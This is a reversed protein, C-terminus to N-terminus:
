VTPAAHKRLVIAVFNLHALAGADRAACDGRAYDNDCALWDEWAEENTQMPAISVIDIGATQRILADWYAADHLTSLDEPTGMQLLEAPLADHLDRKMGPVAILVSGGPKVFPLLKEGLFAPDHAFYHYADISVVADFFDRAFPLADASAKLAVVHRSDLGMQQFFRLNDTPDSWLDCAFVHFGFDQALMVSTIGQGSGLDMVVAGQPIGCGALLEEMLKLPNPGMIKQRVLDQDYANSLPYDM